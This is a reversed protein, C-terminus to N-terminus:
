RAVWGDVRNHVFAILLVLTGGTAVLAALVIPELRADASPSGVLGGVVRSAVAMVFYTVAVLAAVALPRALRRLTPRLDRQSWDDLWLDPAEHSGVAHM